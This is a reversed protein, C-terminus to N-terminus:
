TATSARAGPHLVEAAGAVADAEARGRQRARVRARAQHRRLDARRRPPRHQEDGPRHGARQGPDPPGLVRRHRGRRDQRAPSRRHRHAAAGGDARGAIRHQPLRGRRGSPEARRQRPDARRDPDEPLRSGARDDVDLDHRPRRVGGQARVAGGPRRRGADPLHEVLVGRRRDDRAHEHLDGRLRRRRRDRLGLLGQSRHQHQRRVAGARGPRRARRLSPLRVAARRDPDPRDQLRRHPRARRAAHPHRARRLGAHQAHRAPVRGQVPRGRRRGEAQRDPPRRRPSRTRRTQPPRAGADAGHWLGSWRRVAAPLPRGRHPRRARAHARARRRPAAAPLHPRSHRPRHRPARRRPVVGGRRRRSM